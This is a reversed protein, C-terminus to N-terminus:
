DAYIFENMNVILLCLRALSNRQLYDLAIKGEEPGPERGFAIRWAATVAAAPDEGAQKQVRAAFHGAQAGSFESNMLSLAQPAVTSTERRPCSAATDPADFIQLMPLTLSRKMQLYISRRNHEAPDPHAPWLQPMRAAQIEEASLPPIVGVGGMRLNLTGAVALISDRVADGDLRRRNMRSLLRNEPDKDLSEGSALSSLRYASSLMIMRHMKKISWGQETFEVALWDLLEPHTPPEGQRGFDNPSRVIGEGFHGQWIRNVMVRSVLPNDLSTLWEALAKRRRPVILVGKPEVIEPGTSLASLFGPEVKEGKNKFEGRVLIHTDPIIEEHALVNATPYREPARLYAEALKQLLAAREPDMGPQRPPEEGEQNEAQEAQARGRGRGRRAAMQKLAQAHALLPFNRSNTQVDFLSVLPIEREVSGAFLATMRYYDRQSIPDFKHDHCRACAVTLGLFAAGVTDVADAQWEARFQDGYYTFEIPFSGITFLSTGVRRNVNEEKEKPLKLTGELDLNMPWIEDAAIQEKIFEDYPKDQNLSRIIYDRYRWATTFFHDTEFGSTDAYRVLDLWYRGWREGYRPSALLRDILKEYADASTDKVFREVEEPAPPLGHLDFTARRAFVRRGAGAAPQLGSREIAALIFADVPQRVWGKNKVEPIKPRVPKHFSWWGWAAKAGQASDWRAGANIWDRIIKVEAATLSAPAPPMQLEGERLVAKYLTSEAAKGPVIAPGRKGGRLLGSRERMDLDSMAAQGHCVICKAALLGVVAKELSNPQACLHSTSGAFHLMLGAALYLISGRSM